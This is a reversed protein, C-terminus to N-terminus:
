IRVALSRMTTRIEDFEPIVVTGTASLEATTPRRAASARSGPVRTVVFSNTVLKEGGAPLDITPTARFSPWNGSDPTAGPSDTATM